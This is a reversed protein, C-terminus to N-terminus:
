FHREKKIIAVPNKQIPLDHGLAKRGQLERCEFLLPRNFFIFVDDPSTKFTPKADLLLPVKGREQQRRGLRLGPARVARRWPMEWGVRMAGAELCCSCQRSGGRRPLAFCGLAGWFPQTRVTPLWFLVESRACLLRSGGQHLFLERGQQHSTDPTLGHLTKLSLCCSVPEELRTQSGSVDSKKPEM